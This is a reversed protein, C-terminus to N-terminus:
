NLLVFGTGGFITKYRLADGAPAVNALVMSGDYVKWAGDGQHVAQLAVRQGTSFHVEFEVTEADLVVLNCLEAVRNIEFGEFAYVTAFSSDAVAPPAANLQTVSMGALLAISFCIGKIGTQM